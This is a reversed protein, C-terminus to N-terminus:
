RQASDTIPTPLDPVTTRLSRLNVLYCAIGIGPGTQPMFGFSAGFKILQTVVGREEAPLRNEKTAYDAEKIKYIEGDDAVVILARNIESAM